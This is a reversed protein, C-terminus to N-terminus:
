RVTAFQGYYYIFVLLNQSGPRLFFKEVLASLLSGFVPGPVPSFDPLIALLLPVALYQKKRRANKM